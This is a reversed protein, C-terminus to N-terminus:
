ALIMILLLFHKMFSCGFLHMIFGFCDFSHEPHGYDKYLLKGNYMTITVSPRNDERLPSCFKVGIEKFNTCYYSFIDIDRIRALIMDRSLHDESSRSKIM